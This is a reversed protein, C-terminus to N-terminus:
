RIPILLLQGIRIENSFLGNAAIIAEATTGYRHAVLSLTDGLRVLYVVTFRPAPTPPIRTATPPIPTPKPPLPTPSPMLAIIAPASQSSVTAPSRTPSIVPSNNSALQGSGAMSSSYLTIDMALKAATKDQTISLNNIVFGKSSAEKIRSVFEILQHSDGQVQLRATTIGILSKDNANTAPQTQLDTITVHSAAAYQYLADTFQGAQAPSLLGNASATLTAQTSALQAQLVAPDQESLGRADFISKRADSVQSIIQDRNRLAPGITSSYFFFYGTAIFAILIIPLAALLNDQLFEKVVNLRNM